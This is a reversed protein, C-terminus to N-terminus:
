PILRLINKYAINEAIGRDLQGLVRRFYEMEEKLFSPGAWDQKDGGIM